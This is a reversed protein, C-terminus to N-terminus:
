ANPLIRNNHEALKAYLDSTPTSKTFLAYGKQWLSIAKTNPFEKHIERSTVTKLTNIMKSLETTPTAKFHVVLSDLSGSEIVVDQIHWAEKNRQIANSICEILEKTLLQAKNKTTLALVYYLEYDLYYNEKM